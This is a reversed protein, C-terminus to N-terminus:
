NHTPIVLLFRKDSGIKSRVFDEMERKNLGGNGAGLIPVAIKQLKHRDAFEPFHGLLRGIMEKDSKQSWSLWPQGQDLPKTPFFILPGWPYKIIWRPDGMPPRDTDWLKRQYEGLFEDIKPYRDLAQRALGRGMINGTSRIKWGINVPITIQYGLYVKDWIDGFYVRMTVRREKEEGVRLGLM